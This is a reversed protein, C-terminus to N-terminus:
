RLLTVKEIAHFGPARFRAFYIGSAVRAGRSDRGDWVARHSGATREGRLVTILHRGAADYVDLSVVAERPLDFRFTARDRSPNAGSRAFRITTPAPKVPSAPVGEAAVNATDHVGPSYNPIEDYSFFAYRYVLGPRVQTDLYPTVSHDIDDSVVVRIGHTPTSGVPYTSGDTPTWTIPLKSRVVLTGARDADGARIWTLAVTSDNVASASAAAPDAPPRTDFGVITYEQPGDPVSTGFVWATWEGAEPSAVLVQEVNDLRNYGPVAPADPDEPDLVFPLFSGATPAFLMLDLDNVLATDALEAGPPDDWVMTVRLTDAGSPVWFSWVDSQQHGVADELTTATRLAVDSAEVDIAGLGFRYDPGVEYRDHAFGGLLAKATAPRPDGPFRARWDGVLLAIAGSVVPTAQSTGCRAFYGGPVVGTTTSTIGFDGFLQCGPATMDPKMRGDDTPGWNSFGTMASAMDSFHAGVTIVNKATGPPPMTWYGGLTDKGCIGDDRENGAAFVISVPKGFIGRVIADYEPADSGYDGFLDCNSDDVPYRWSNTSVDIGYTNIATFSEILHDEVDWAFLTAAPAVGRWQFPTGGHNVSNVGTGVAVGAVHTSHPSLFMGDLPTVRGALDPHLTDPRDDDWMGLVVGTGDLGLQHLPEIAANVRMGDNAMAPLPPIPEIWRVDDLASLLELASSPIEVDLVGLLAAESLIRGGAGRVAARVTELSADQFAKVRLGVPAGGDRSSRSLAAELEPSRRDGSRLDWVKTIRRPLRRERVLDVPLSALWLDGDISRLLRVEGSRSGPARGGPARVVAHIRSSDLTRARDV